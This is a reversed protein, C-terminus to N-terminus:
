GNAETGRQRNYQIDRRAHLPAHLLPEGRQHLGGHGVQATATATAGGRRRRPADADRVEAARGPGVRQEQDGHGDVGQAELADGARLDVDEEVVERVVVEVGDEPLERREQAPPLIRAGAAAVVVDEDEARRPGEEAPEERRPAQM